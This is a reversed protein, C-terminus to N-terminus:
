TSNMLLIELQREHASIISRMRSLRITLSLLLIPLPRIIRKLVDFGLLKHLLENASKNIETTADHIDNWFPNRPDRSVPSPSDDESQLDFELLDSLRQMDNKTREIINKINACRSERIDFRKLRGYDQNIDRRNADLEWWCQMVKKNRRMKLHKQERLELISFQLLLLDQQILALEYARDIATQRDGELSENYLRKTSKEIYDIFKLIRRVMFLGRKLRSAFKRAKCSKESKSCTVRKSKNTESPLSDLTKQSLIISIIDESTSSGKEAKQLRIQSSSKSSNNCSLENMLGDKAM